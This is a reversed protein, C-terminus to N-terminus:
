VKHDAFTLLAERRAIDLVEPKDGESLRFFVRLDPGIAL